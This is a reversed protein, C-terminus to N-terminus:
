WFPAPYLAYGSNPVGLAPDRIVTISVTISGDERRLTTILIPGEGFTTV